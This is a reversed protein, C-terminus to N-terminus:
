LCDGITPSFLSLSPNKEGLQEPAHRHRLNRLAPDIGPFVVDCERLEGVAGADFKQQRDRAPDPVAALSVKVAAHEFRQRPRGPEECVSLADVDKRRHVRREYVRDDGGLLERRCVLEALAPEPEVDHAPHFLGSYSANPM